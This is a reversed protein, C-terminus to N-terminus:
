SASERRFPNYKAVFARLEAKDIGAIQPYLWLLAAVGALYIAGAISLEFIFRTKEIEQATIPMLFCTVNKALFGIALAASIGVVQYKWEYPWGNLRAILWAQINVFLINMGVMKIALGLAGLALGPILVDVGPALLLYTVPISVVQGIIAIVTYKRTHGCALFMTGSVQGMSQHIPYFLMVAFVVWSKQYALGLLLNVIEESWPIMFCSIAAAFMLLARNVKNYLYAVRQKDLRANAESIEKWFINLISSTALLCIGALQASIQYFGQQAAGGYRQLMWRDVFEYAFSAVALLILPRCYKWYEGLIEKASQDRLGAVNAHSASHLLKTSVMTALLYECIIAVLVAAISLWHAFILVLIVVFHSAIVTVGLLQVKVTQRTSEGLQTVTTWVQQQMFAALLALLIIERSNGLWIRDILFQPMLVAVLLVSITFQTLLWLYYMLYFKRGRAQQSILTYFANSSGMDMLVRIAIFSGLLYALDGYGTPSLGRAVLLGTIFGIAARLVNAGVSVLFRTKVSTFTM